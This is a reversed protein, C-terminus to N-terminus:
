PFFFLYGLVVALFATWVGWLITLWDPRQMTGRM